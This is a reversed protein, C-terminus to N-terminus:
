KIQAPELILESVDDKGNERYIERRIVHGDQLFEFRLDILHSTAPDPLNTADLFVFHLAQTTSDAALRLRPQNGQACYHTMMLQQGDMHYITETVDVNPDGFTEVLASGHSITRYSIRFASNKASKPSVLQWAGVLGNLRVFATTGTAPEAASSANCALALCIAFFAIANIRHQYRMERSKCGQTQLSKPIGCAIAMVDLQGLDHAFHIFKSRESITQRTAHTTCASLFAGSGAASGLMLLYGKTAKM